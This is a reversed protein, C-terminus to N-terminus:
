WQCTKDDSRFLRYKTSESGDEILNSRVTEGGCEGDTLRFYETEITIGAADNALVHFSGGDCEIDFRLPESFNGATEFARMGGYGDRAAHGQDALLVQVDAGVIRDRQTFLISIREVIQEPNKALHEQSYERLFCGTPVDQAVAPAASFFILSVFTINKVIPELSLSFNHALM